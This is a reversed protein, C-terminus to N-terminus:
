FSNSYLNLVMDQINVFHNVLLGSLQTLESPWLPMVGAQQRSAAIIACSVLYPNQNVFTHDQLCLLSFFEIYKDVLLLTNETLTDYCQFHPNYVKDTSFLLGQSRFLEIASYFNPYNEFDWNITKLM